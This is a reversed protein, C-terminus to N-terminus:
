AGFSDLPIMFEQDTRAWRCLFGTAQGGATILLGSRHMYEQDTRPWRFGFGTAQGGTILLGSRNMYEQDTRPWRFGFGTATQAPQNHPATQLIIWLNM